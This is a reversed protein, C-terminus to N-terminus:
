DLLRLIQSPVKSIRVIMVYAVRLVYTYQARGIRPEANIQEIRRTKANASSTREASKLESRLLSLRSWLSSTSPLILSSLLEM